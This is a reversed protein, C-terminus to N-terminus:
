NLAGQSCLMQLEGTWQRAQNRRIQVLALGWVRSFFRIREKVAEWWDSLSQYFGKLNCWGAYLERFFKCFKQDQLYTTNMKWKGQGRQGFDGEIGSGVLCHDSCWMPQQTYGCVKVFNPFFIYDLSSSEQRSNWWTYGPGEEGAAQFADQLGFSKIVETLEGGSSKDLSMNFDGGLVVLRNTYLLPFLNELFGEREERKSPAYINIFRFAVGRWRADVFIVRGPVIVGSTEFTVEWSFFLIGVGDARM